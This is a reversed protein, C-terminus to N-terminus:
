NSLKSLFSVIDVSWLYRPLAQRLETVPMTRSKHHWYRLRKEDLALELKLAGGLDIPEYMESVPFSCLWPVHYM